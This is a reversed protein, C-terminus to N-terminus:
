LRYTSYLWDSDFTELEDIKLNNNLQNSSQDSWILQNEVNECHGDPVAQNRLVVGVHCQMEM